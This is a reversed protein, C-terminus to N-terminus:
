RLGGKLEQLKLCKSINKDTQKQNWVIPYFKKLAWEKFNQKNKDEREIEKILDNANMKIILSDPNLKRLERIAEKLNIDILYVV